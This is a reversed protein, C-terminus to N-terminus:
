VQARHVDLTIQSHGLIPGLHLTLSEVSELMSVYVNYMFQVWFFCILYATCNADKKSLYTSM